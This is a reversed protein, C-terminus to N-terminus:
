YRGTQYDRYSLHQGTRARYERCAASYDKLSAKHKPKILEAQKEARKVRKTKAGMKAGCSTSCAVSNPNGWYERGCAECTKLAKVGDCHLYLKGNHNQERYALTKGCKNCTYLSRLTGRDTRYRGQPSLEGGCRIHKM